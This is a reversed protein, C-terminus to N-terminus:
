VIRSDRENIEAFIRKVLRVPWATDKAIGYQTYRRAKYNRALKIMQETIFSDESIVSECGMLFSDYAIGWAAHNGPYGKAAKDAYTRANVTVPSNKVGM